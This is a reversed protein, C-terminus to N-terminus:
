SLYYLILDVRGRKALYPGSFRMVERVKERYVPAYCHTECKSCKPKPDYTCLLLKAMGHSLLKNCDKCLELKGNGLVRHLREDKVPFPERVEDKHHERCYVEIFEGLVKLDKAKKENLKDFLESM